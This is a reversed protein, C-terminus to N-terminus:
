VHCFARLTRAVGVLECLKDHVTRNSFYLLVIWVLSFIRCRNFTSPSATFPTALGPGFGQARSTPFSNCLFSRCRAPRLRSDFSLDTALRTGRMEVTSQSGTVARM